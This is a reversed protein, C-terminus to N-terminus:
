TMSSTTDYIAGSLKSDEEVDATVTNIDLEPKDVALVTQAPRQM